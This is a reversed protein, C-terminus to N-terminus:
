WGARLAIEDTLIPIADAGALDARVAATTRGSEVDADVAAGPAARVVIVGAAVAAAAWVAVGTAAVAAVLATRNSRMWQTLPESVTAPARHEPRM